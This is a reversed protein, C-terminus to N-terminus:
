GAPLFTEAVTRRWCVWTRRIPMLLGAHACYRIGTADTYHSAHDLHLMANDAIHEHTRGNPPGTLWPRSMHNDMTGAWVMPHSSRYDHDLSAGKVLASLLYHTTDRCRQCTKVAGFGLSRQGILRSMMSVKPCHGNVPSDRCRQCSAM